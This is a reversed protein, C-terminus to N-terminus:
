AFRHVNNNCMEDRIGRKDNRGKNSLGELRFNVVNCISRDLREEIYTTQLFRVLKELCHGVECQGCWKNKYDGKITTTLANLGQRRFFARQCVKLDGLNVLQKVVVWKSKANGARAVHQKPSLPSRRGVVLRVCDGNVSVFVEGFTCM